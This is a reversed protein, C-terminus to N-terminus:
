FDFECSGPLWSCNLRNPFLIVMNATILVSSVLYHSLMVVAGRYFDQSIQQFPYGVAVRRQVALTLAPISVILITDGWFLDRLLSFGQWRRPGM